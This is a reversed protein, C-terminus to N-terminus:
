CPRAVGLFRSFVRQSSPAAQAVWALVQLYHRHEARQLEPGSGELREQLRRGPLALYRWTALAAGWDFPYGFGANAQWTLKSAGAGVGVYYPVFWTRDSGFMARGKLGIVADWHTAGAEGLGTRPPLGASGTSNLSWSLTNSMDLRRTDFLLDIRGEADDKLSCLGALTWIWSKLDLM